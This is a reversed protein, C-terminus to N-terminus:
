GFVGVWYLTELLLIISLGVVTYSLLEVRRWARELRQSGNHPTASRLPSRLSRAPYLRLETPQPSPLRSGCQSCFSAGELVVGGCNPCSRQLSM